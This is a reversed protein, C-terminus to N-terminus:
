GDADGEGADAPPPMTDAARREAAESHAAELEAAPDIEVGLRGAVSVILSVGTQETLLGRDIAVAVAATTERLAASHRTVDREVLEPWEISPELDPDPPQAPDPPARGAPDLRRWIVYRAMRRLIEAWQGQRHQLAKHVPDGMEAATARNM